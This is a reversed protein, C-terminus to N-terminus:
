LTKKSTGQQEVNLGWLFVVQILVEHILFTHFQEQQEDPTKAINDLNARKTMLWAINEFLEL